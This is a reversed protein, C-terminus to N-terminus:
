GTVITLACIFIILTLSFLQLSMVHKSAHIVDNPECPKGQENFALRRLKVGEYMAVGGLQTGTNLALLHVIFDNNLKFFHVKTLRWKLLFNQGLTTMLMMLGLIRTPLWSIIQVLTNIPQGFAAFSAQKVNWSQHMELLLRYILAPLGGLFIFIVAVVFQKQTFHLLQAEVVAKNLGLPSLNDTKRLLLTQAFQKAKYNLNSTLAQAMKFANNKANFGGLAFYLLLSQWLAPVLVFDAFLWLIIALPTITVVIAVVGSIVQQQRSNTQHKNVKNALQQCYFNFARLPEHAVGKSVLAKITYIVVFLLAQQSIFPLQTFWQEM